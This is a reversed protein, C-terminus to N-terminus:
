FNAYLFSSQGIVGFFVIGVFYVIMRITREKGMGSFKGTYERYEMIFLIFTFICVCVLYALCSFDGTFPLISAIISDLSISFNFFMLTIFSFALKLTTAKFFIWGIMIIFFTAIVQLMKKWRLSAKEYNFLNFLGHYIGWILFNFGNGHWLGSVTFTLLININKLFVGKRNGGLPIYIYDRLWSSLSIHWRRWFDKISYSFYPLRFNLKCEVGLLNAVGIAIESYGAFDCYIQINYFFAAMWLALAPYNSPNAFVTNVYPSIRDAIVLKKFLGSLILSTGCALMDGSPKSLHRIQKMIDQSRSIPGCIIQPFFSVYVAYEIISEDECMKNQYIDILYSIIKFTYYSIGLPMVIKLIDNDSPVFFNYYKFFILILVIPIIGIWLYIKRFVTNNAIFCGICYSWIIGFVILLLFKWDCLAYFLINLFLLAYKKYNVSILNLIIASFISFLVFLLINSQM